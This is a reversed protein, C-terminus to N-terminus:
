LDKIRDSLKLKKTLFEGVKLPNFRSGIFFNQTKVFMKHFSQKNQKELFRRLQYVDPKLIWLKWSKVAYYKFNRGHYVLSLIEAIKNGTLFDAILDITMKKYTGPNKFIIGAGRAIDALAIYPVLTEGSYNGEIKRKNPQIKINEMFLACRLITFSIGRLRILREIEVKSDIFNVGTLENGTRIFSSFVLHYVGCQQCTWLINKAQIIESTIDYNKKTASWPQTVGFVGYAGTFPEILSVQSNTDAKFIRAGMTALQKAARSDPDRTLAVVEWCEERLLYRAVAGGQNGTAGCVVIKRKLASTMSAKPKSLDATECNNELKM